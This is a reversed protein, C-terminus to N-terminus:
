RASGAATTVDAWSLARGGGAARADDATRYAVIGSAMATRAAASQAYFAARADIWAGDNLHVFGVAGAPTEPPALEEGVRNKWDAILCGVDDYFRTDGGASVLEAAGIESSILMGCRACEVRDLPVPEPGRAQAACGAMSLAIMIVFYARSFGERETWAKMSM